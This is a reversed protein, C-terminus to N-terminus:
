SYIAFDILFTSVLKALLSCHLCSPNVSVRYCFRHVVTSSSMSSSSTSSFSVSRHYVWTIQREGHPLTHFARVMIAQPHHTPCRGSVTSPDSTGVAQPPYILVRSLVLRFHETTAAVRAWAAFGTGRPGVGTYRSCGSRLCRLSRRM